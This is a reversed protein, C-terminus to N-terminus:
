LLLLLLLLLCHLKCSFASWSRVLLFLPYFILLRFAKRFFTLMFTKMKKKFTHLTAANRTDVPLTNWLRPAAVSFARKGFRLRARPVVLDSNTVSRLTVERQLMAVPQLMDNIYSPAIGNFSKYVLWSVSNSSSADQICGICTSCRKLSTTARDIAVCWGPLM